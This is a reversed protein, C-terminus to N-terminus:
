LSLSSAVSATLGVFMFAKVIFLVVFIISIWAVIRLSQPTGHDFPIDHEDTDFFMIKIIKLYYFAAVVSTLVGILALWIYGADIAAKFVFFKGFFGALPPIGSMSFMLIALAYAALPKTKSFGRLGDLTQVSLGNRRVYLLISFTGATMVMYIIIYLLSAGVGQSTGAVLGMLIYGINGISSYALIRKINTQTLAGIAGVAMSFASLAYLIQGTQDFIGHFPGAVIRMLIILMAAKPVIAFLATVLTPVGQYVDPTWMHFPAASLKFAIGALLFVVGFTLGLPVADYMDIASALSDFGLTGAFGYLLSIGFLTFGSSLAGLTFYKVGAEASKVSGRRMAALIYLSLSQLELGLYFTLFHNSAIMVMMGLGSLLMLVPFEFRAVGELDMTQLSMTLITGLGFLIVFKGFMIFTGTDFMGNLFAGTERPALGGVIGATIVVAMISAICIASGSQKSQEFVGVILLGMAALAMFLEPLVPILSFDSM